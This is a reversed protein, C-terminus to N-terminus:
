GGWGCADRLDEIANELGSLTFTATVPSEGYPTVRLLLREYKILERAFATDNGPYFTAKHDTSIGWDLTRAPRDDLRHLVDTSDIGLYVEWAVYIETKHEKCRVYLEPQVTGGFQGPITDNSQLSLYVNTSDDVPSKETQARWAGNGMARRKADAIKADMGRLEQEAKARVPTGTYKETIELLTEKAQEFHEQQIDSQARTLLTTAQQAAAQARLEKAESLYSSRPWNQTFQDIEAIVSLWQQKAKYDLIKSWHGSDTNSLRALKGELEAIRKKAAVLEAQTTKLEGAVRSHQEEPIGCAALFLFLVPLILYLRHM